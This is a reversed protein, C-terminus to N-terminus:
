YLSYCFIALQGTKVIDQMESVTKNQHIVVDFKLDEFIKKLNENDIAFGTRERQGVNENFKHNNIIIFPGRNKHNMKYYTEKPM